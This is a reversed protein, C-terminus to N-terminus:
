FGLYIWFGIWKDFVEFTLESDFKRDMTRWWFQIDFTSSAANRYSYTPHFLHLPFELNKEQFDIDGKKRQLDIDGKM